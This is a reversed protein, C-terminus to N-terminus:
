LPTETFTNLYTPSHCTSFLASAPTLTFDAAPTLADVLRVHRRRWMGMGVGWAGGCGGEDDDWGGFHSTIFLKQGGM